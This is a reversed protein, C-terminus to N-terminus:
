NPASAPSWSFILSPSLIRQEDATEATRAYRPDEHALQRGEAAAHGLEAYAAALRKQERMCRGMYLRANPSAVVAYSARFEELAAGFHGQGFLERGKLFRTQAQDRQPATAKTPDAGDGRAGTAATSMALALALASASRRLSPANM